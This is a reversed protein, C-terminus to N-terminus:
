SKSAAEEKVPESTPHIETVAAKLFEIKSSGDYMKVIVTDDMVNSVTGIIGMVTVKDGKKLASRRNEAAKRRKREPRWILIYFFLFGVVLLVIMNLFSSQQKDPTAEEAFLLTSPIIFLLSLFRKM